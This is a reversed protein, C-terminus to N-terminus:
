PPAAASGALLRGHMCYSHLGFVHGCSLLASLYVLPSAGHFTDIIFANTDRGRGPFVAFLGCVWTLYCANQRETSYRQNYIGQLSQELEALSAKGPFAGVARCGRCRRNENWRSPRPDWVSSYPPDRSALSLQTDRTARGRRGERPSSLPPPNDKVM